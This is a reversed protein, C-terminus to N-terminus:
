VSSLPEGCHRVIDVGSRNRPLREVANRGRGRRRGRGAVDGAAVLGLVALGLAKNHRLCISLMGLTFAVVLVVQLTARMPLRAYLARLEPTTPLSPFHFRRWTARHAWAARARSRRRSAQTTSRSPSTARRQLRARPQPHAPRTRLPQHGVAAAHRRRHRPEPDLQAVATPISQIWVGWFEISFPQYSGGINGITAVAYQVAGADATPDCQLATRPDQCSRYFFGGAKTMGGHNNQVVVDAPGPAGSPTVGTLTTESMVHLPLVPQGGITASMPNRFGTGTITVITGDAQTGFAPTVTTLTPPLDNLLVAVENAGRCAV